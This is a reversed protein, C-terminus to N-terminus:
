FAITQNYMIHMLTSNGLVRLLMKCKMHKGPLNKSDLLYNQQLKFQKDLQNYIGLLYNM